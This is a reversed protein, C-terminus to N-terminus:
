DEKLKGIARRLDRVEQEQRRITVARERVKKQDRDQYGRMSELEEESRKLAGRLAKMPKTM